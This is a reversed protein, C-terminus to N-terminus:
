SAAREEEVAEGTTQVVTPGAPLLFGPVNADVRPLEEDTFLLVQWGALELRAAARPTATWVKTTSGEVRAVVMVWLRRELDVLSFTRMGTLQQLEAYTAGVRGVRRAAVLAGVVRLDVGRLETTDKCRREDLEVPVLDPMTM